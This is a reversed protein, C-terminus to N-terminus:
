PLQRSHVRDTLTHSAPVLHERLVGSSEMRRKVRDKGNTAVMTESAAAHPVEDLGESTGSPPIWSPLPGSPEIPSPREGSAPGISPALNSPGDISAGLASAGRVSPFPPSPGRVSPVEPPSPARSALM